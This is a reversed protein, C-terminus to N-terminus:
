RVLEECGRARACAPIATGFAGDVSSEPIDEELAQYVLELELFRALM